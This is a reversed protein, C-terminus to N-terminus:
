MKETITTVGQDYGLTLWGALEQRIIRVNTKIKSYEKAPLSM